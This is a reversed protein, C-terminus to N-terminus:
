PVIMANYRFSEVQKSSYSSKDMFWRGYRETKLDFGESDKGGQERINGNSKIVTNVEDEDSWNETLFCVNHVRVNEESYIINLTPKRYLIRYNRYM